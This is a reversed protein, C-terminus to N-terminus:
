AVSAVGVQKQLEAKQLETIGWGLLRMVDVVRTTLSGPEM